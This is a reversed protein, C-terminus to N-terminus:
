RRHQGKRAAALNNTHNRARKKRGGKHIGQRMKPTEKEKVNLDVAGQRKQKAWAVHVVDPSNQAFAASGERM